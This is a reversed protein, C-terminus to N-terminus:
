FFLFDLKSKLPILELKLTILKLKFYDKFLDILIFFNLKSRFAIMKSM